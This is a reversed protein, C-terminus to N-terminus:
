RRRDFPLFISIVTGSQSPKRCSKVHINGGHKEIIGACLWLGLGTGVATRTTFFPEFMRKMTAQDMGHGTDAVTIRVGSRGTRWNTVNKTRVLLRGGYPMADMANHALNILVQRLEERAGLVTIERNYRREIQIHSAVIRGGFLTLASEIIESINCQMPMSPDRYFRLAQITIDTVRALEEQALRIYNRQEDQLPGDNLLYLLNTIAELPNNIEHAISAALRGTVNLKESQMVSADTQRLSTIDLMTGILRTAVRHGDVNTFFARGTAAIWRVEGNPCLVRYDCGYEGTSEARLSEQVAKDTRERDEPHLLRLFTQYNLTEDWGLGFMEHCRNSWQLKGNSPDMDWTGIQGAEIALRQQEESELQARRYATIDTFTIQAGDGGSLPISIAKIEIVITGGQQRVWKGNRRVWDKQAIAIKEGRKMWESLRKRRNEEREGPDDWRLVTHLFTQETNEHGLLAMGAPNLYLLKDWQLLATPVPSVNLVTRMQELTVTRSSGSQPEMSM